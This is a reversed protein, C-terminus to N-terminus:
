GVTDTCNLLSDRIQFSNKFNSQKRDNPQQNLKRIM